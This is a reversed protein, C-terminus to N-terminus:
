KLSSEMRLGGHMAAIVRAEPRERFVHANMPVVGRQKAPLSDPKLKFTPSRNADTFSSMMQLTLAQSIEGFPKSMLDKFEVKCDPVILTPLGDGVELLFVL